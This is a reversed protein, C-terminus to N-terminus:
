SCVLIVQKGNTLSLEASIGEPTHTQHQALQPTSWSGVFTSDRADSVGQGDKFYETDKGASKLHSAGDRDVGDGVEKTAGSEPRINVVCVGAANGETREDDCSLVQCYSGECGYEEWTPRPIDNAERM